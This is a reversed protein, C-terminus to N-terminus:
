SELSRRYYLLKEMGFGWDNVSPLIVEYGMTDYLRRAAINDDEVHLYMASKRWYIQVLEESLQCLTVALKQRRYAISANNIFVLSTSLYMCVYM